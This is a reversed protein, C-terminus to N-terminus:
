TVNTPGPANAPAGVDILYPALAAKYYGVLPDNIAASFHSIYDRVPTVPEPPSVM